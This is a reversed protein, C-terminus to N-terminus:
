LQYDIGDYDFSDNHLADNKPGAFVPIEITTFTCAYTHIYFTSPAELITLYKAM